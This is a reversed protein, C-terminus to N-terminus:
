LEGLEEDVRWLPTKDHNSLLPLSPPILTHHQHQRRNWAELRVRPEM